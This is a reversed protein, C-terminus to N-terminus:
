RVISICSRVHCFAVAHGIFLSTVAATDVAVAAADADAAALLRQV